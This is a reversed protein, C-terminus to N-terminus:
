LFKDLFVFSLIKCSGSDYDCSVQIVFFEDLGLVREIDCESCEGVVVQVIVRRLKDIVVGAVTM